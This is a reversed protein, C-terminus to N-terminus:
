LLKLYKFFTSQSIFLLGDHHSLPMDKFNHVLNFNNKQSYSKIKKKKLFNFIKKANYQNGIEVIMDTKLFDKKRLSCIVTAEASEIDIKILSFKSVIDQAAIARVKIISNPGYSEKESAIHSGTLNDHVRMFNLIAKKNFIALNYLKINKLKNLKINKKLRLFINPDPEYSSVDFGIKEMIISHLGINAGFDGVKIKKPNYKKYFFYLFFIIFENACLLDISNIKGMKTFPFFIKGFEEFLFFNKKKISPIKKKILSIEKEIELYNKSSCNLNPFYKNILKLNLLKM